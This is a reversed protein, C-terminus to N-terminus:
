MSQAMSMGQAPREQAEAQKATQELAQEYADLVTNVLRECADSMFSFEGSCETCRLRYDISGGPVYVNAGCHPCATSISGM